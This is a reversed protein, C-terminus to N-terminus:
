KYHRIWLAIQPKVLIVVHSPKGSHCASNLAWYILNIKELVVFTQWSSLFCMHCKSRFLCLELSLGFGLTYPPKKWPYHCQGAPLGKEASELSPSFWQQCKSLLWQNLHCLNETSGHTLVKNLMQPHPAGIRSHLETTLFAIKPYKNCVM